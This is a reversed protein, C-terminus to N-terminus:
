SKAYIGLCGFYKSSLIHLSPRIDHSSRSTKKLFPIWGAGGHEKPHSGGFWYHNRSVLDCCWLGHWWVKPALLYTDVHTSIHLWEIICILIFTSCTFIDPDKVFFGARCIFTGAPQNSGLILFASSAIRLRMFIECNLNLLISIWVSNICFAPFGMEKLFLWSTTPFIDIMAEVVPATSAGQAACPWTDCVYVLELFNCSNCLIYSSYNYYRSLVPFSLSIMRRGHDEITKLHRSLREFYVKRHTLDSSRGECTSYSICIFRYQLKM